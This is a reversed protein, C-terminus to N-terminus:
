GGVQSVDYVRGDQYGSMFIFVDWAAGSTGVRRIPRVAGDGMAFQVIGSHKAGLSFWDANEPLGWATPYAGVGAWSAARTRAGSSEGGLTEGFMLTNSLGDAATASELTVQSRNSLLGIYREGTLGSYGSIGVYNTRGFAEGGSGIARRTGTITFTTAAASAKWTYM